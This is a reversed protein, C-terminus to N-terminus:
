PTKRRIEDWYKGRRCLRTRDKKDALLIEVARELFLTNQSGKVLIVDDKKVGAIILEKANKFSEFALFKFNEKELVPVVFKKMLPGILIAFDLTKLIERALLEHQIKALSGLERMDGLIAVKRRNGAIESLANLCGVAPELSSNYSSDLVASNKIGKFVTFRGAPLSFKASLYASGDKLSIECSFAIALAMVITGTYYKPLPQPVEITYNDNLFVFKVLFSNLNIKSSVIYFDASKDKSSITITKSRLPLLNTINQDDLNVISRGDETISKLLMGEQKATAELIEMKREGSSESKVLHDFYVSHEPYINTLVGIKPRIIQLLYEMNKPPNPSDIGMEVVFYEYKEWNTIIKFPATIAAKVWDITDYNKLEIGLINLPIGSESNKGRSQKVKYKKSLVLSVLHSVSSKGTAGGIGIIIPNIKRIQVKAFTRLYFLLPRSFIKKMSNM